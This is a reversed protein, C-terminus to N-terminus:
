NQIFLLTANIIKFQVKKFIDYVYFILNIIKLNFSICYMWITCINNKKIFQAFITTKYFSNSFVSYFKFIIIICFLFYFPIYYWNNFFAIEYKLIIEFLVKLLLKMILFYKRMWLVLYIYYIILNKFICGSFSALIIKSM